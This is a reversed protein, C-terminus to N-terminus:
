FYRELKGGFGSTQTDESPMLLYRPLQFIPPPMQADAKKQSTNTSPSFRSIKAWENDFKNMRRLKM